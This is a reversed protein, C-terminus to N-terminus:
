SSRLRWNSSTSTKVKDLRRFSKDLHDFLNVCSKAWQSFCNWSEQSHQLKGWSNSLITPDFTEWVSVPVEWVEVTIYSDEFSWGRWSAHQRLAIFSCFLWGTITWTIRHKSMPKHFPPGASIGTSVTAPTYVVPCYVLERWVLGSVLRVRCSCCKSKPSGNSCGPSNPM